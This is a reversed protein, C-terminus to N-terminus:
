DHKDSGYRISGFNKRIDTEIEVSIDRWADIAETVTHFGDHYCWLLPIIALITAEFVTPKYCMVLPIVKNSLESVKNTFDRIEDPTM